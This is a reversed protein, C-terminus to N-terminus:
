GKNEERAKREAWETMKVRMFRRYFFMATCVLPFWIFLKSGAWGETALLFIVWCASLCALALWFYEMIRALRDM